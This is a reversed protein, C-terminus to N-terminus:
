ADPIERYPNFLKTYANEKGEIMDSLMQSIVAANALGWKSMGTVIYVNKSDPYLLGAFPMRDKTLYDGAGWYNLVNTVGFVEEAFDMIPKYREFDSSSKKPSKGRGGVLLYNNEDMEISRITRSPTDATLYMGGGYSSDFEYTMASTGTSDLNNEYFENSDSIPYKTASIVQKCTITQGNESQLSVSDGDTIKTIETNEFLLVGMKELEKLVGALFQVPHFEYQQHMVVAAEVNLDIALKDVLEGNIDLKEYATAEKKMAEIESEDRTYIYADQEKLGCEISYKEAIEQIITIGEINADYYKRAQKTGYRQILEDYVLSHQASLKSTTHGTTGSVMTNKEFLAVSKGLSSLQYAALIGVIGGGVVAVDVTLDKDLQPYDDVHGTTLWFSEAQEPFKTKDM